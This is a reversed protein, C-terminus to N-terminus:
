NTKYLDEILNKPNTYAKNALLQLEKPTCPITFIANPLIGTTQLKEIFDTNTLEKKERLLKIYNTLEFKKNLNTTTITTITEQDFYNINFTNNTIDFIYVGEEAYITGNAQLKSNIEDKTISIFDAREQNILEFRSKRKFINFISKSKKTKPLIIMGDHRTSVIQPLMTVKLYKSPATIKICTTLKNDDYDVKIQEENNSIAKCEYVSQEDLKKTNFPPIEINKLVNDLYNYITEKVMKDRSQNILTELIKEKESSDTVVRADPERPTIFYICLEGNSGEKIQSINQEITEKSITNNSQKWEEYWNKVDETIEKKLNYEPPLYKIKDKICNYIALISDYNMKTMGKKNYQLMLYLTKSM